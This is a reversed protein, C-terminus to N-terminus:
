YIHLLRADTCSYGGSTGPDAVFAQINLDFGQLRPPISYSYTATGAGAGSGSLSIPLQALFPTAVLLTCGFVQRNAPGSGALIWASSGGLGQSIVVDMTEGTTSSGEVEIQPIFGGSGVTGTGYAQAQLLSDNGQTLWDLSFRAFTISAYGDKEFLIGLRRDDLYTLTSYAYGGAYVERSTTWNEGDDYSIWVRGHSRSGTSNPGAYLMRTESFGDAPDTYQLISASCHPEILDTEQQLPTWNQGGDSSEAVLRYSGGTSRANLILRGDSLEAMQVENANIGGLQNDDALNGWTWSLGGDDSYVAYVEWGNGGQNFPFVIRGAHPGHRMQIGVGPGSAVSTAGTPRKVQTTIEWPSSWNLGNDDSWMLYSRCINGSYGPVVCSEHCGYPYKQFMLLLRGPYIDHLRVVCPNNLSDNGADWMLQLPEWTEGDDTSRKLVIDNKAHDSLSQRGEAFALLTGDSARTIAPIRYAPYHGDNNWFVDFFDPRPPPQTIPHKAILYDEIAQRDAASLIEDYVLVEAILGDLFTSISYRSGLILGKLSQLSESGQAVSSGNLFQEQFGSDLVLSHVQIIGTDVLPGDVSGTGTFTQWQGPASNQGTFFANRGNSSTGDVVYGGNAQNAQCAIFITKPGPITGFEGSSDGWLYRSGDFELAPYGNAAATRFIPEAGAATRVLDHNGNGSDGWFTVASGDPPLSPLGNIGSGADLWCWLGPYAPNPNGSSTVVGQGAVTLTLSLFSLCCSVLRIM